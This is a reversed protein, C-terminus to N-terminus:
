RRPKRGIGVSPETGLSKETLDPDEGRRQARVVDHPFSEQSTTHPSSGPATIVGRQNLRRMERLMEVLEPNDLSAEQRGKRQQAMRMLLEAHPRKTVLWPLIMRLLREVRDGTFYKVGVADYISAIENIMAPDTNAVRVQFRLSRIGLLIAPSSIKSNAQLM